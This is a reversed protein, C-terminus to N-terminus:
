YDEELNNEERFLKGPNTPKLVGYEISVKNPETANYILKLYQQTPPGHNGGKHHHHGRGGHRPQLFLNEGEKLPANTINQVTVSDVKFIPSFVMNGKAAPNRMNPRKGRPPGRPRGFHRSSGPHPVGPEDTMVGFDPAQRKGRNSAVSPRGTQYDSWDHTMPEMSPEKSPWNPLGTPMEHSWEPSGGGSGTHGDEPSNTAQEDDGPKFDLQPDGTPPFEKDQWPTQSDPHAAVAALLLATICLFQM